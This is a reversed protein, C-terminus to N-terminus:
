CEYTTPGSGCTRYSGGGDGVSCLSLMFMLFIGGLILPGMKDDNM